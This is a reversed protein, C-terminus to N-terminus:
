NKKIQHLKKPMLQKSNNLFGFVAKPKKHDRTKVKLFQTKM